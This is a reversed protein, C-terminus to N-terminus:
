KSEGAWTNVALAFDDPTCARATVIEPNFGFLRLLRRCQQLVRESQRRGFV